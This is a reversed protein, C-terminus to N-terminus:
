ANDNNDKPKSLNWADQEAASVPDDAASNDILSNVVANTTQPTKLALREPHRQHVFKDILESIISDKARVDERLHRIEDILINNSVWFM